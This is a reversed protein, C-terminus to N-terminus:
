LVVNNIKDGEHRLLMAEEYPRKTSDGYPRKQIRRSFGTRKTTAKPVRSHLGKEEALGSLEIVVDIM